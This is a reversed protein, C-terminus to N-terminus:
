HIDSASADPRPPRGAEGPCDPRGVSSASGWAPRSCRRGPRLGMCPRSKGTSLWPENGTSRCFSSSVVARFAECPDFSSGQSAKKDSVCAEDAGSWLATGGSSRGPRVGDPVPIGGGSRDEGVPFRWLRVCLEAIRAYLRCAAGGEVAGEGDTCLVAGRLFLDPIRLFSLIRRGSGFDGGLSGPGPM